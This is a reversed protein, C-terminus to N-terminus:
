NIMAVAKGMKGYLHVCYKPLGTTRLRGLATVRSCLKKHGSSRGAM